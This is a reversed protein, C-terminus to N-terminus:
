GSVNRRAMNGLYERYCPIRPVLETNLYEAMVQVVSMLKGVWMGSEADKFQPTGTLGLFIRGHLNDLFFSKAAEQKLAVNQSILEHFEDCIIRHWFIRQLIIGGKDGFNNRGRTKLAIVRDDLGGDGPHHQVLADCFDTYQKNQLFTLPVIVIDALLVKDWSIKYYV